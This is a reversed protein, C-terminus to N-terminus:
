RRPASKDFERLSFSSVKAFIKDRLIQGFGMATQSSYYSAVVAGVMGASAVLLMIGGIKWIYNIDGKIIGTNVIDAM